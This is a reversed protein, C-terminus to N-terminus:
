LSGRSVERVGKIRHLNSIINRLHDVGSCKIGVLTVMEGANERTALSTIAVKMDTLALTIDAILHPTYEAIISLVAEFSGVTQRNLKESWSAVVWRDKDNPNSLGSQANPCDYKHISVGYGRTIYGIISDGPLPNCCKAFKVTCGEVSDVIVSDANGRSTKDYRSSTSSETPIVPATVEAQPAVVRM